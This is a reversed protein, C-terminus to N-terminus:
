DDGTKEFEDISKDHISDVNTRKKDNSFILEDVKREVDKIDRDVFLADNGEENSSPKPHFEAEKEINEIQGDSSSDYSDDSKKEEIGSESSLDVNNGEKVNDNSNEISTTPKELGYIVEPEDFIESLTKSKERGREKIERIKVSSSSTTISEVGNYVNYTDNMHSSHILPRRPFFSMLHDRHKVCLGAMLLVIVVGIILVMLNFLKLEQKEELQEDEFGLAVNVIITKNYTNGNSDTVVLTVNYKGSTAYVHTPTKGTGNIGDGFNWQYSVIIGDIDFSDSADFVITKNVSVNCSVNIDAVQPEDLDAQSVTVNLAHSWSSNLGNIDQAIVKIEYVSIFGWYHSMSVSTNSVVFDSWESINGDGWNFRYRIQDGDVDFTSISYAYKVGMEIFTPGSPKLSTEPPNNQVSIDNNDNGPPPLGGGNGDGGNSETIFWYSKNTWSDGDTANVFWTYTTLYSLGSIICSKSGNNDGVGSSSGIDPTTTINWNISDGELDEITVSLVSTSISVGTSSDGPSPNNLTPAINSSIQFIEFSHASWVDSFFSVFGSGNATPTAITSGSRNVLYDYGIPFGSLNFWVNGGSTNAYFEVIKDGDVAGAIDDSLYVLSIAIDNESTLYFGTSNFVIHSSAITVSNFDMTQNVNYTENEALFLIDPDITVAKVNFALILLLLIVSKKLNKVM